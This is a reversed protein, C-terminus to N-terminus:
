ATYLHRSIRHKSMRVNGVDLGHVRGKGGGAAGPPGGQRQHGTDQGRGAACGGAGDLRWLSEAADLRGAQQGLRPVEPVVM